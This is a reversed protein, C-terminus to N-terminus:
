EEFGGLPFAATPDGWSPEVHQVPGSPAGAGVFGHLAPPREHDLPVDLSVSEAPDGELAHIANQKERTTAGDRIWFPGGVTPEEECAEVRHGPLYFRRGDPTYSLICEYIGPAPRNKARNRPM